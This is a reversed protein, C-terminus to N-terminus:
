EESKGKCCSLIFLTGSFLGGALVFDLVVEWVCCLWLRVRFVFLSFYFNPVCWCLVGEIESVRVGGKEGWLKAWWSM